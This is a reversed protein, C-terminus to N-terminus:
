EKLMKEVNEEVSQEKEKQYEKYLFVGCYLSLFTLTYVVFFAPLSLLLTVISANYNFLIYIVNCFLTFPLLVVYGHIWDNNKFHRYTKPLHKFFIRYWKEVYLLYFIFLSYLMIAIGVSVLANNLGAVFYTWFFIFLMLLIGAFLILQRIHHRLLIKTKPIFSQHLWHDAKQEEVAYQVRKQINEEHEKQIHKNLYWGILICLIFIPLLVLFSPLPQVVLLLTFSSIIGTLLTYLPQM